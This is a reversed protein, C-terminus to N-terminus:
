KCAGQLRFHDLIVWEIGHLGLKRLTPDPMYIAIFGWRKLLNMRNTTWFEDPENFFGFGVSELRNGSVLFRERAAESKVSVLINHPAAPILIDGYPKLPRMKGSNLTLHRKSAWVPWEDLALEMPPVGHNTLVEACFTEMIDGGSAGPVRPPYRYRHASIKPHQVKFATYVNNSDILEGITTECLHVVGRATIKVDVQAYLCPCMELIRKFCAKAKTSAVITSPARDLARCKRLQALVLHRDSKSVKADLHDVVASWDPAGHGIPCHPHLCRM